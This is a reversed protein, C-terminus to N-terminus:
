VCSQAFLNTRCPSRVYIILVQVAMQDTKTRQGVTIKHEAWRGDICEASMGEAHYSGKDGVRCVRQIEVWSDHNYVLSGGLDQTIQSAHLFQLLDSPTELM